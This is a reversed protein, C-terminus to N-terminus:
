KYENHYELAKDYMEAPTTFREHVSYYDPLGYKKHLFDKTEQFLLRLFSGSLADLQVDLEIEWDELKKIREARTKRKRRSILVSTYYALFSFVVTELTIVGLVLVSM